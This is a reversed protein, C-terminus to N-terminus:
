VLCCFLTIYLTLSLPIFRDPLDEFGRYIEHISTVQETEKKQTTIMLGQLAKASCFNYPQKSM